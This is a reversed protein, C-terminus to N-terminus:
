IVKLRKAEEVAMRRNSVGLKQYINKLHGKVTETTVFLKDAIEKNQLRQALLELVDLERNTLPEILPQSSVPPRVAAADAISPPEAVAPSADPEADDFAALIDDVFESAKKQRRLRVLLDAVPQGAERFPQIWGGAASLEVARHIFTLADDMRNRKVCALSLLTLVQITQCTNHNDQNLRLLEHLRAEAKELSTDSGHAILARCHTVAPIELWWIMNEGAPPDGQLFDSISQTKGQMVALRTKCADALVILAPDGKAVALDHLDDLMGAARDSRGLAQMTLVAGVMSDIVARTNLVHKDEIARMFADVAEARENRYFHILGDLYISWSSAHTFHGKEAFDFLQRNVAAAPRLRGAIIHIYVVTVLLRTRGINNEWVPQDLLANLHKLASEPQGIMQMALGHLIEIQSCIEVHTEPVQERARTLHELSRTGDNAFYLFLGRFFDIEGRVSRDAPLDTLLAEAADIVPPIKPYAFHHYLLWARTMLLRPSQQIIEGPLMPLWRELLLWRDENLVRQRNQEVIRGAQAPDGAAIAHRIAEEVFGHEAFWDSARLHLGAIDEPSQRQRLQDQMLQQLLHHYRFWRATADLPVVFFHRTVLWDIFEQGRAPPEDSEDAPMIAECLSANFRELIATQLLHRNYAAPSKSLVEELLYAQVYLATGRLKSLLQEPAPDERLSLAALHLGTVWGEIKEEIIQATQDSVSLRLFRDLYAKTEAVTFRLDTQTIETLMGRARLSMLPLPPDRRTVLVLHISPSPHVLLETIFEHISENRIQHYDDLVLAFKRGCSELDNLLHQCAEKASPLQGGMVLARTKIEAGELVDCIATILYTLFGRLQNDGDDLSVWASPLQSVELWQSVLISKGYGAPAAVLTLPNHVGNELATILRSRPIISASVGPRHLKTQLITEPRVGGAPDSDPVLTKYDSVLVKSVSQSLYIDGALVTRIGAVMEEPISEKLIYGSAGAKIMDRVFQKGSHVSLAVVRTQPAESLIERTAEIGDLNPMNIDMVVLDPKKQQVQEIAMQGDDAEGVITLDKERALLHYLGQRFVPHDDVLLIRATM